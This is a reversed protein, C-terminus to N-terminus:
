RIKYKSMIQKKQSYGSLLPNVNRLVQYPFSAHFETASSLLLTISNYKSVNPFFRESVFLILHRVLALRWEEWYHTGVEATVVALPNYGEGGL